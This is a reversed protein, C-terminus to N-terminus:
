NRLLLEAKALVVGGAVLQVLYTKNAEFGAATTATTSTVVIKRKVSVDLSHMATKAGKEALELKVPATGPDKSLFGILHITWPPGKILEYHGDKAAQAKLFGPLDDAVKPIPDPSIVIQGDYQRLRDDARAVTVVLALLLAIRV